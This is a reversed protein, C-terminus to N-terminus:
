SAILAQIAKELMLARSGKILVIDGPQSQRLFNEIDLLDLSERAILKEAPYGKAIAAAEAHKTEGGTLYAQDFGLQALSEGVAIHGLESMDGLEKMEGIVAIRRGACPIEALVQLAAITSDPSANYADLLLTAGKWDITQLRMPPLNAFRILNCSEEVPVGVVSAALIASAANLANHRGVVDLTVDFVKGEYSMRSVSSDVSLSRYGIIQLDSDQSFGFTKIDCNAYEKMEELFPDDQPLIATGSSPLAQLLESKAKVIGLRSGVKELHATGIMTIIGITPRSIECLHAIQGFGRMGMEIVASKHDENLETWTLPSSFESNRNGESKLVAGLSTLCAATFEKTTTKGNSGTIGIVPGAFEKRYSLGLRALAKVTNEVEISPYNGPTEVVAAAAGREIAAGVYDHGDVKAGRVAIFLDGPLVERHDFAFGSVIQGECRRMRGSMRVSLEEITWTM